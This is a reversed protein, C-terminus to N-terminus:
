GLGIEVLYKEFDTVINLPSDSNSGDANTASTPQTFNSGEGQSVKLLGHYEVFLKSTADRLNSSLVSAQDPSYMRKFCFDAFVYKRRPDLVTAVYLIMNMREVNGWYKEFKEKMRKAMASFQEDDSKIWDCLTCYLECIEPFYVNSTVYTTGSVKLTFEYFRQLFKSVKRVNGWDEEKPTGGNLVLEHKYNHDIEEFREFAREFKQAADLMLYTSNWRTSCDMSLLSKSQIKELDICEKFRHLRAPSQRVYKVSSRVRTISENVEKLGDTVVLNIIHAVCRMHIYKGELLTGSVNNLKRKLYQTAVDNSSANDVTITFVKDIAWDRLCKEIM